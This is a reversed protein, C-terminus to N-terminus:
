IREKDRRLVYMCREGKEEQEKGNGKDGGGTEKGRKRGKKEGRNKEGGKLWKCRHM